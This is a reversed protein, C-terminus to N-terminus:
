VVRGRKGVEDSIAGAAAQHKRKYGYVRTNKASWGSEDNEALKLRTNEAHEYSRFVGFPLACEGFGVVKFWPGTTKIM